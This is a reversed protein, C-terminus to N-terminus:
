RLMARNEYSLEILSRLIEVNEPVKSFPRSNECLWSGFGGKPEHKLRSEGDSAIDILIGRRM